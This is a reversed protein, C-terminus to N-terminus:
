VISFSTKPYGTYFKGEKIWCARYIAKGSNDHHHAEGCEFYKAGQQVNRPPVCGFLHWFINESIEVEQGKPLETNWRSWDNLMIEHQLQEATPKTDYWEKVSEKETCETLKGNYIWHTSILSFVKQQNATTGEDLAYTPTIQTM